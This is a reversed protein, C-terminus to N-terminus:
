IMNATLKFKTPSRRELTAFTALTLRQRWSHTDYNIKM